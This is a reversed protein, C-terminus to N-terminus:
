NPIDVKWLGLEGPFFLHFSINDLDPHGTLTDQKNFSTTLALMLTAPVAEHSPGLHYLLSPLHLCAM